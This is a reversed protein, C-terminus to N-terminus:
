VTTTAKTLLMKTKNVKNPKFQVTLFYMSIIFDKPPTKDTLIDPNM